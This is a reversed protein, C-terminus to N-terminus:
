PLVRVIERRSVVINDERTTENLTDQDDVLVCFCDDGPPVSTLNWVPRGPVIVAGTGSSPTASAVRADIVCDAEEARQQV